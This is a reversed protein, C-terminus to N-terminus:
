TKNQLMDAFELLGAQAAPCDLLSVRLFEL